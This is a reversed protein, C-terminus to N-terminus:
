LLWEWSESSPFHQQNNIEKGGKNAQNPKKYWHNFYFKESNNAPNRVGIELWIAELHFLTWFIKKKFAKSMLLLQYTQM